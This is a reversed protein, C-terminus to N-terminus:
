GGGICPSFSRCHFFTFSFLYSMEEEEEEPLKANYDHFFFAFFPVFFTHLQVTAIQLLWLVKYYRNCDTIFGTARQLLFSICNTIVTWQVKYYVLIDCNTIVGDYKTIFKVFAVNLLLFNTLLRANTTGIWTQKGRSVHLRRPQPPSLGMYMYPSPLKTGSLIEFRLYPIM